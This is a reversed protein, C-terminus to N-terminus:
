VSVKSLLYDCSHFVVLCLRLGYPEVGVELHVTAFVLMTQNCEHRLRACIPFVPRAVNQTLTLYCFIASNDM